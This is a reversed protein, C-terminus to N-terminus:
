YVLGTLFCMEDQATVGFRVPLPEGPTCGADLYSDGCRRVERTVGNDHTCQYELYDGPALVLPPDFNLVRPHAWDTNDYLPTGDSRWADFRVGRQHMHSALQPVHLPGPTSNYYRLRLTAVEGPPVFISFTSKGGLNAGLSLLTDAIIANAPAPHLNIWMKVQIPVDFENFYHPNIGLLSGGKVVKAVNAPCLDVFYPAEPAGSISLGFRAGGSICATDRKFVGLAPVPAEPRHEWLALHHTGPNISYEWASIVFDETNPVTIWECGEIEEGPQLVPGEYVIQHGGPPPALPAAEEFRHRPPCPRDDVAGSEPAGADIWARVLDLELPGVPRGVSPMPNGEGAGLVGALKRVLFSADADGPVVRLRGPAGSAPVGVLSAHAAGLRLDLGGSRASGHCTEVRCGRPGFVRREIEAFTDGGVCDAPDGKSRAARFRRARSKATRLRVDAADCTENDLKVTLRVAGALGECGAWRARLTTRRKGRKLRAPTTPCVHELGVSGNAIVIQTGDLAVFEGTACLWSEPPAAAAAHGAAVLLSLLISLLLSRM